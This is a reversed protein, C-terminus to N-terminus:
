DPHWGPPGNLSVAQSGVGCGIWALACPISEGVSLLADLERLPPRASMEHAMAALADTSKGMASLIAVIKHGARQATVMREAVARLCDQDVVSTGGFKWVMPHAIASLECNSHGAAPGM